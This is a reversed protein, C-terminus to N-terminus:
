EYYQVPVTLIQYEQSWTFACQINQSFPFSFYLTYPILFMSKNAFRHELIAPFIIGKDNWELHYFPVVSKTSTQNPLSHAATGLHFWVEAHWGAEALQQSQM